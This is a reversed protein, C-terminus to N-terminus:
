ADALAPNVQWRQPPRGPGAQDGARDPRVFGLAHLRYLVQQAGDANITRGLARCRIDERSIVTAGCDKLWRAVRRVRREFDSPVALDFVARAHPRFYSAWLAAAAEIQAGGLHGPLGPADSGSWALLELAGALRAVTAAGKGLWAAELGESKRLDAHLGALFGDFAKVGHADLPLVVPDAPTRAVRSIRRLMRLADDDGAIKRDALPGYPSAGPWVYLFCAALGEDSEQLAEKLRDPQITGLISVPFRELRLPTRAGRRGFAVGGAAWAQLWHARDSGDAARDIQGLWAAPGDCWLVVGRSNGRVIDAIPEPSTEAVVVQSPVFTGCLGAEKNLAAHRERRDDDHARREEEISDLLRRMPALSRTKGSSPEGVAVQWLVLPESWTPTIRVAMGAGSLGALAALMAQAVYDPSVGASSATDNVWDRWPQALLDLPFPRVVGRKEELISADIEPWDAAISSSLGVRHDYVTPRHMAFHRSGAVAPPVDPNPPFSSL